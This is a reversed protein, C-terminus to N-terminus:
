LPDEVEEFDFTVTPMGDNVFALAKALEERFKELDGPEGNGVEDPHINLGAVTVTHPFIGVSMDGPWYAYATHIQRNSHAM